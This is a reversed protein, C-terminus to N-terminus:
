RPEAAFRGGVSPRMSASGRHIEHMAIAAATGVNLSGVLGHQPIHVVSHCGSLFSSPLGGSENGVAVASRDPWRFSHIPVASPQIELAVTRYGHNAAWVFYEEEEPLFVVKCMRELKRSFAQSRKKFSWPEEYGVFVVEAGGFAVHTRVITGVNTPSQLSHLVTCFM